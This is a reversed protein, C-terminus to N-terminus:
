LGASDTEHVEAKRPGRSSRRALSPLAGVWWFMLLYAVGGSAAVAIKLLLWAASGEEYGFSAYTLALALAFFPLGPLHLRAGKLFGGLLERMDHMM